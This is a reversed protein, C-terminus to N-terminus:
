SQRGLSYYVAVLFVIVLLGLAGDLWWNQGSKRSPGVPGAITTTNTITSLPIVQGSSDLNNFDPMSQSSTTQLNQGGPQQLTSSVGSQPNTTQGAPNQTTTQTNEM